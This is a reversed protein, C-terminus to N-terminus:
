DFVFVQFLSLGTELKLINLKLIEEKMLMKVERKIYAPLRDGLM